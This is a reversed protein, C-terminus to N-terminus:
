PESKVEGKGFRVGLTDTQGIGTRLRLRWTMDDGLRDGVDTASVALTTFSEGPRIQRFEQGAITWESTLTLPYMTIQQHASTEIFSDLPDADRDRVFAEDLPAFIADTSVNKLLLKLKLAGSGGERTEYEMVTRELEVAGLVVEVATAEVSGLRMPKGITTIHDATLVPPPIVKRSRGARHGPDPSTDVASIADPREVERVKRGSFYVWLLGITLASSYSLLLLNWWAGGRPPLDDDDEDDDEDDRKRPAAAQTRPPGADIALASIAEFSGGEGEPEPLLAPLAEFSDSSGITISAADAVPPWTPPAAPHPPPENARSKAADPLLSSVDFSDSPPLTGPDPIATGTEGSSFEDLFPDPHPSELSERLLANLDDGSSSSLPGNGDPQPRRSRRRGSEGPSAGPAPERPEDSM